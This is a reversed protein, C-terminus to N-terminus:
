VRDDRLLQDQKNLYDYLYELQKVCHGIDRNHADHLNERTGNHLLCDLEWPQVRQSIRRNPCSMM